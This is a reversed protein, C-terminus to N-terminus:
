CLVRTLVKVVEYLWIIGVDPIYQYGRADMEWIEHPAGTQERDSDPLPNHKACPELDRSIRWAPEGKESREMIEIWEEMTTHVPM